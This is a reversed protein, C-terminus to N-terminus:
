DNTLVEIGPVMALRRDATILTLGGVAATAAIFRDAPDHHPLDIRRGLTAAERDLVADRVPMVNLALAVWEQPDQDLEIRGREILLLTEWM